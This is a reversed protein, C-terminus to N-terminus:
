PHLKFPNSLDAARETDPPGVFRAHVRYTGPPLSQLPFTSLPQRFRGRADLGTVRKRSARRWGGDVKRRLTLGVRGSATTQDPMSGGDASVRGTVNARGENGSGKVLVTLNTGSGTAQPVDGIDSAGKVAARYAAFGPKKSYDHRLLGFFNENSDASTGHDRGQYTFLPGGWRYTRWRSYARLIATAQAEESVSDPGGTPAGFETAWIKKDADGNAVMVSRLSPNTAHMQQWATCNPGGPLAPWCYPHHSVADFTSGGGNAYIAQLFDVPPYVTSNLAAATGATLVTSHPDAAKIAPYAAKLLETYAAPDPGPGWFRETNPENWVEYAHVGMASYHDVATAAFRAYAAPDPGHSATTGPPRAWAPSNLIIGLVSMGRDTAARVVRDTADWDYSVPGYAQIQDWNIDIRVWRSGARAIVDLDRAITAADQDQIAGGTSIGFMKQGFSNAGAATAPHALLTSAFIAIGALAAPPL